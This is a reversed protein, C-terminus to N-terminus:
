KWLISIFRDLTTRSKANSPNSKDTTPPSSTDSQSQTRVQREALTQVIDETHQKSRFEVAGADSAFSYTGYTSVATRIEEVTVWPPTKSVSHYGHFTDDVVVHVNHSDESYTIETVAQQAFVGLLFTEAQKNNGAALLSNARETYM